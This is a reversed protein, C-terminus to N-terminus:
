KRKQYLSACEDIYDHAVFWDFKSSVIFFDAIRVVTRSLAQFMEEKYGEYVWGESVIFYMKEDGNLPLGNKIFNLYDTWSSQELYFSAIVYNDLNDKFHLSKTTLSITNSYYRIHDSFMYYFKRIIEDYKFKSFEHFRSRDINATKIAEEIMDRHITRKKANEGNLKYEM